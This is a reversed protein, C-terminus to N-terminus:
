LMYSLGGYMELNRLCSAANLSFDGIKAASWKM